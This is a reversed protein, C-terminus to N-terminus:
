QWVILEDKKVRLLMAEPGSFAEERLDIIMKFGNDFIIEVFESTEIVNDVRKTLLSEISCPSPHFFYLNYISLLIDASFFLTLQGGLVASFNMLTSGVIVKLKTEM